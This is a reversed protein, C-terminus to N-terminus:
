QSQWDLVPALHTCLFGSAWHWPNAMFNRRGSTLGLPLLQLGFWTAWSHPLHFVTHARLRVQWFNTLHLCIFGYVLSHVGPGMHSQIELFFFFDVFLVVQSSVFRGQSESESFKFAHDWCSFCFWRDICHDRPFTDVTLFSHQELSAWSALWWCFVNREAVFHCCHNTIFAANCFSLRIKKGQLPWQRKSM